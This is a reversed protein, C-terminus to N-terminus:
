YRLSEESRLVIPCLFRRFMVSKDHFRQHLCCM